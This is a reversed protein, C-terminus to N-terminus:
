NRTILVVWDESQNNPSSGISLSSGSLSDTGSTFSGSRPNFWRLEYNGSVVDLARGNQGDQLYLAYVEGPKEFVQDDSDGGSLASDNPSMEWFPLNEIMFSRAYRMYEYMEERTRFNETRMDGGLPLSHYGFYWEIHGGSFLTPYLVEARLSDANSDTLGTGAPSIEDMEIVWKVGADASNQRWTEVFRDANRPSFQISTTDFDPNGLLGSYITAPNNLQTHVAIQHDAWDISRIYEAFEELRDDGYRSEESLNWKLGNLYSFRAVLERYYLKRENGLNGGDLWDTNGRETEALVIHANIGKRQMHNLVINWQYLKSIDYHTNDFDSGSPGVFPYTERGDGGLNMPLFYISNVEQESLYNIAGIIGKGDIGTDESIFNPDGTNWDGIHPAYRHVGDQLGNTGVGGPQDVTNDFGAYGLFNEPSDIGGKIWYDGDAQKLYHEGIYELRGDALLGPANTDRVSVNFSGSAGDPPLSSGASVNSSVAINDGQRFSVSYSWTGPEDPAFRVRWLNGSGNGQGDGAYFGPVVVENGSPATLTINLRVDLFPNPDDDSESTSFGVVDLTLPQWERRNESILVDECNTTACSEPLEFLLRADVSNGLPDLNTAFWAGQWPSLAPSINFDLYEGSNPEYWFLSSGTLGNNSAAEISCGNLCETGQGRVFVVDSETIASDLPAGLMTWAIRNTLTALPAEFCGNTSTCGATNSGSVAPLTDPVTLVVDSGTFQQVWLGQGSELPDNLEVKTYEASVGDYRFVVWIDDYDSVDLEDGFLSALTQNAPDAPIVIQNWDGNQITVTSIAADGLLPISCFVLAAYASLSRM